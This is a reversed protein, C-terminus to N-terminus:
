SDPFRELALNPQRETTSSTARSSCRASRSRSSVPSSPSTPGHTTSASPLLMAAIAFALVAVVVAVLWTFSGTRWVVAALVLATLLAPVISWVFAALGAQGLSTVEVPLLSSLGFIWASAILIVLALAAFFPGVLAYILFTWLARQSNSVM